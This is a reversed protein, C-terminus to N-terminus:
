KSNPLDWSVSSRNDQSLLKMPKRLRKLSIDLYYRVILGRGIREM